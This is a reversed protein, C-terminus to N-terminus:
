ETIKVITEALVVLAPRRFPKNDADLEEQGIFEGEQTGKAVYDLPVRVMDVLPEGRSDAPTVGVIGGQLDFFVLVTKSSEDRDVVFEIQEPLLKPSNSKQVRAGSAEAIKKFEESLATVAQSRGRTTALSLGRTAAGVWLGLIQEAEDTSNMGSRYWSHHRDETDGGQQKSELVTDWKQRPYVSWPLDM